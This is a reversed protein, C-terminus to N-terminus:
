KKDLLQKLLNAALAPDDARLLHQIQSDPVHLNKLAAAIREWLKARKKGEALYVEGVLEGLKQLMIADQNRYYNHIIREQHASHKPM